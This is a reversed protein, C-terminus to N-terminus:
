FDTCFKGVFIHHDYTTRLYRIDFSGCFWILLEFTACTLLGVHIPKTPKTPVIDELNFSLWPDVISFSIRYGPLALLLQFISARSLSSRIVWGTSFLNLEIIKTM